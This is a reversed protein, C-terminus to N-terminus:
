NEAERPAVGGKEQIQHEIWALLQATREQQNTCDPCIEELVAIWRDHDAAFYRLSSVKRPGTPQTPIYDEAKQQFMELPQVGM